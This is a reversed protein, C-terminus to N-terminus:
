GGVSRPGHVELDCPMRSGHSACRASTQMGTATVVVTAGNSAGVDAVTAVFKEITGGSQKPIGLMDGVQGMAVQIGVGTLFGVLVSRSLFNAVFGLKLLRALILYGGTVLALKGAFPKSDSM